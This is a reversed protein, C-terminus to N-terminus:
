DEAAVAVDAIERHFFPVAVGLDILDPLSCGLDLPQHNGAFERAPSQLNDNAESSPTTCCGTCCRLLEVSLARQHVRDGVRVARHGHWANAADPQRSAVIFEADIPLPGM